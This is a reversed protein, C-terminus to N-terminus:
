QTAGGGFFEFYKQQLEQEESETQQMGRLIQVQNVYKELLPVMRPNEESIQTLQSSLLQVIESYTMQKNNHPDVINLLSEIQEYEAADAGGGMTAFMKTLLERFEEENIIGNGDSDM